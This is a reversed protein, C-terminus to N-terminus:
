EVRLNTPSGPPAVGGPIATPDWVLDVALPPDVASAIDEWRVLKYNQNSGPNSGDQAIFVGNSFTSGLPANIVDIGDTGGVDDITASGVIEFTAVYANDGEREYIVYESAGQSSALLYGKGNSAYYLTLGEVDATLHGGSGTSDVFTRSSGDQPEAGYKWIGVNEEGIYFNGLEDDAVCGETQTGVDFVRVLAASVKGTGNDFLHWQEVSGSKSNVFFYYRGTSASRYMCSGYVTLNVPITGEAVDQLMRTAPDVAYIAITDNSRNGATVLAVLSGNLPFNYRLDVNNLRGDPLYQIEEGSLNYVALGGNKDTGLITSLSPDTPHIWVAPDDSSDGEHPVPDTEVTAVVSVTQAITWQPVALSLFVLPLGTFGIKVHIRVNMTAM